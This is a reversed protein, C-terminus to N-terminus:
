YRLDSGYVKNTIYPTPPFTVESPVNVQCKHGVSTQVMYPLLRGCFNDKEVLCSPSTLVSMMEVCGIFDDSFGTCRVVGPIM